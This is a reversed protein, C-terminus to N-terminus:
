AGVEVPGTSFALRWHSDCHGDIELIWEYRQGPPFPLPGFQIVLPFDLPSGPVLGPPRGVEFGAGMELPRSEGDRASLSVPQGDQDVLRLRWEHRRNAQDWPVEIKMVIAFPTPHPGMRTWGGGLIYLKGGLAQAADALLMTVRM